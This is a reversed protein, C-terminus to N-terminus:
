SDMKGNEREDTRVGVPVVAREARDLSPSSGPTTLARHGDDHADGAGAAEDPRPDDLHEEGAPVGDPAGGAACTRGPRQQQQRGGQRREM